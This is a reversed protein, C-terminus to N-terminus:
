TVRIIGMMGTEQHEIIHCHFMWDGPNDAVLAAQIRENPLLLVTDAHHVPLDRKNSRLVKLSHGHIHIPHQHPTLNRLEFIYSGGRTLTALPPPVVSHGGEPWPQKNIAWFTASASCISGLPIGAAALEAPATAATASFAFVQTEAHDLDPEAIRGARLPAPDFPGARRPAGTGALRALPVPEAAFYDYLTAVGGDAPARIVLDIRMAPGMRWSRLPFPPVAIGDIAVAAVEAGEIGIEMIRTPDINYVRLRCDGAAPLAIRPEIAGNCSRVTGFTGARGAGQPTFFPAFGGEVTDIRWDRLVLVEDADYAETADGDIILLGALGRGLQEVTNCHTHFFFSGTDPPVFGYDRTEGPYVPPQTVYPVGDQQNPIRMGHWHISAHEGERPLRNAFHTELRDGINLRVVPLWDDSFTWMPLAKGGFCPLATPREAAALDLRVTRGPVLDPPPPLVEAFSRAGEVRGFLGAGAALAAAGFTFGRRTLM